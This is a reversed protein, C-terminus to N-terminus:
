LRRANATFRSAARVELLREEPTLRLIRDVDDLMHSGAVPRPSLAAEIDFGAAAILRRLTDVRPRSEGAEIRAVVSQATDGREALERQTLGARRRAERLM